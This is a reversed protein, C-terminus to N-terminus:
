ASASLGGAACCASLSWAAAAPYSVIVSGSETAPLEAELLEAELLETELLETGLVSKSPVGV